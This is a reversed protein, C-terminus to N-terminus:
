AKKIPNNIGEIGKKNTFTKSKGNKEKEEIKFLYYQKYAWFILYKSYYWVIVIIVIIILSYLINEIEIYKV